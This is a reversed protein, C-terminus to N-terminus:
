HLTKKSTFRVNFLFYIIVFQFGSPMYFLSNIFFSILIIQVCIVYYITNKMSNKRKFSKYTKGSVFGFIASIVILGIFGLAVYADSSYGSVNFAPTVLFDPRNYNSIDRLVSPIIHVFMFSMGVPTFYLMFLKNLNALQMTLYMYVWYIGIFVPNIKSEINAVELFSDYGTRINGLIGFCLMGLLCIYFLKKVPIKKNVMCYVVVMQILASVIVQRTLMLTYGILMIAIIKKMEGSKKPNHNSVLLYTIITIISLGYANAFGHLTHIGYNKYTKGGGIGLLSWLLPFGGSYITEFIEIFLWMLYHKKLSAFSINHVGRMGGRSFTYTMICVLTFSINSCLLYICTRDTLVAQLPSIRLGYLSCVSLWIINFVFVPNLTSKYLILGVIAM